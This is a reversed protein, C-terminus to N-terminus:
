LRCAEFSQAFLLDGNNKVVFGTSSASLLPTEATVALASPNTVTYFIPTVLLTAIGHMMPASGLEVDGGCAAVSFTVISTNDDVTNDIPDKETVVITALRNGAFVDQPQQTFVLTPTGPGVQFSQQVQTAAAYDANGDQNADITCTGAGIFSVSSGSASGTISCVSASSADITLVVGLGSTATATVVYAADGVAAGVPVTSTFDITQTANDVAFSQQVQPAANYNANGAQNANITCTGVGVYSVSSGNGNGSLSCVSVSAADITLTVALGSNATATVVYATDGFKAGAPATSTFNITQASKGVAFTQQVQAATNYNANGAQNADITCTGVGIYSVSSGSTSGSLTCV